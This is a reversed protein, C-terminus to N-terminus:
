PRRLEGVRHLAPAALEGLRGASGDVHDAVRVTAGVLTDSRGRRPPSRPDAIEVRRAGTVGREFGSRRPRKPGDSRETPASASSSANVRTLGSLPRDLGARSRAPDQASSRREVGASAARPTSSGSRPSRASRAPSRESTATAAPARCSPGRRRRADGPAATGARSGAPSCRRTSSSATRRTRRRRAERRPVGDGPVGRPSGHAAHERRAHRLRRPGGTTAAAGGALALRIWLDWDALQVLSSTSAM